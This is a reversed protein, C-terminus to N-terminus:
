HVLVSLLVLPMQHSQQMQHMLLSLLVLPMQHSQQM